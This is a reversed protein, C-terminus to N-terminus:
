TTQPPKPTPMHTGPPPNDSGSLAPDDYHLAKGGPDQTLSVLWSVAHALIGTRRLVAIGVGTVAVGGGIAAVGALVDGQRLVAVGVSVGIGAVGALADGHRLVAVGVGIVAIGFGIVAVGFLVVGQHLVAVGFGISAVGVGVIAVGALLEVARDLDTRTLVASATLATAAITALGEWRPNLAAVGVAVVAVGLLARSVFRALPARSPLQRVWHMGIFIAAVAAVAAAGRYGVEASLTNVALGGAVGLASGALERLSLVRRGEAGTRRDRVLETERVLLRVRFSVALCEGATSGLRCRFLCARAPRAPRRSPRDGVRAPSPRTLAPHPM